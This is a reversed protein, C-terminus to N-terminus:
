DRNIAIAAFVPGQGLGGDILTVQYQVYRDGDACSAVTSLDQGLTVLPAADFPTAGALDAAGGTRVRVEVRPGGYTEWGITGWRSPGGTDIIQSTFSGAKATQVFGDPDLTETFGASPSISGPTSQSAADLRIRGAGGDGGRYNPAQGGTSSTDHHGNGGKGGVASLTGPITLTKARLHISGGAGGGSGGDDSSGCSATNCKSATGDEGDARVTGGVVITLAVIRIAGGGAGGPGTQRPCTGNADMGGTGGGSGLMLTSIQPDGYVAGPQGPNSGNGKGVGATGSAGYSGGGGASGQSSGPQGAGGGGGNPGPDQNGSGLNSEGDFGTFGGGSCTYIGLKGGRYGAGDVTLTGGALITVAGQVKWRLTGGTTGNWPTVTVTAGAAITVSTYNKETGDDVHVGSTVELTGDSGDGLDVGGAVSELQLWAGAGSGAVSLKSVVGADFDSQGREVIAALQPTLVAGTVTVDGSITGGTLGDVSTIAPPPVIAAIAEDVYAKSALGTVANSIAAEVGSTTAPSFALAESPICAVCSVGGATLASTATQAHFAFAVTRLRQRPLEPEAEFQIGLYLTDDTSFAASPLAVKTGLTADFLGGTVALAVTELWITEGGAPDGYLAFTVAYTGAVIPGGPTQLAGQVHMETPVDAHAAASIFTLMAAVTFVPCLRAM